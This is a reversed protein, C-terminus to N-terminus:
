CSGEAFLIVFASSVIDNREYEKPWGSGDRWGFFDVWAEGVGRTFSEGWRRKSLKLLLSDVVCTM